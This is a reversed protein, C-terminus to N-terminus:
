NEKHLDNTLNHLHANTMKTRKGYIDYMYGSVATGDKFNLEFKLNGNEYFNKIKGTEPVNNFDCLRKFTYNLSQFFQFWKFLLLVFGFFDTNFRGILIVIGFLFCLSEGLDTTKKEEM